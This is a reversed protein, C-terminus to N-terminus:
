HPKSVERDNEEFLTAFFELKLLRMTAHTKPLFHREVRKMIEWPDETVSEGSSEFASSGTHGGASEVIFELDKSISNRILYSALSYKKKDDDDLEYWDTPGKLFRECSNFGLVDGVNRRWKYYSEKDDELKPIRIQKTSM